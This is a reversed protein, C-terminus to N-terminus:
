KPPREYLAAWRQAVYPWVPLGLMRRLCIILNRCALDFRRIQQDLPAMPPSGADGSGTIPESPSPDGSTQAEVRASM